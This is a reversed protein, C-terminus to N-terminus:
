PRIFGVIVKLEGATIDEVSVTVKVKAATAVSSISIGHDRLPTYNGIVDAAQLSAGDAAIAIEAASTGSALSDSQTYLETVIAGAPVSIDLYYDGQARPLVKASLVTKKNDVAGEILDGIKVVEDYRKGPGRLAPQTKSFDNLLKKTLSDM